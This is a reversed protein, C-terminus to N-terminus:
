DSAPGDTELSIGQKQYYQRAVDLQRCLSQLEDLMRSTMRHVKDADPHIIQQYRVAPVQPWKKWVMEEPATDSHQTPQIIVMPLHLIVQEVGVQPYDGTSKVFPNHARCVDLQQQPWAHNAVTRLPRSWLEYFVKIPAKNRYTDRLKNLRARFQSAVRKAQKERGTLEGLMELEVAVDELKKPKSFLIPIGYQKLRQLDESPNGSEWAIVVDPQLQLIKEIQLRAYNGVRPIDNAQEPYDAYSTTAIIQEGAGIEFLQEVIHPALAIIRKQQKKDATEVANVGCCLLLLTIAIISKM